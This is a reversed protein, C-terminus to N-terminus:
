DKDAFNIRARADTVTVASPSLLKSTTVVDVDVHFIAEGQGPIGPIVVLIEIRLIVLVTTTSLKSVSLSSNM